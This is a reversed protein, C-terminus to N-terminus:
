DEFYKQPINKKLIMNVVEYDRLDENAAMRKIAKAIPKLILYGRRVYSAQDETTQIKSKKKNEGLM